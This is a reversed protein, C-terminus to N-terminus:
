STIRQSALLDAMLDYSRAVGAEMGSAVVGDRAEKTDSLITMRFKTRAGDALLETTVIAQGPYWAPEFQESHQLLSPREVKRFTGRVGFSEKADHEWVYHYGGGVRLDIECVPMSWGEPGLLWQRVLEPKTLADFVYERPADFTRTILIERDGQASMNFDSTM